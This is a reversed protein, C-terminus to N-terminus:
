ALRRRLLGALGFLGTGLLAFTSPEPTAASGTVLFNASDGEAAFDGTAVSAYYNEGGTITNGGSIAGAPIDANEYFYYETGATLDLSSAFSYTGGSASASGLYGPDSSSLATPLGTYAVSFLYGTGIAYPALTSTDFNFVIDDFTGTGGVTFSQGFYGENNTLTGASNSALTSAHAMLSISLAAAVVLVSYHRM